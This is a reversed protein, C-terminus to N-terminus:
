VGAVASEVAGALKALALRRASVIGCGALAKVSGNIRGSEYNICYGEASIQACLQSVSLQVCLSLPDCFPISSIPDLALSSQLEQTLRDLILLSLARCRVFTQCTM